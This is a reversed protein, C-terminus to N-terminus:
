LRTDGTGPALPLRASVAFGGGPRPGATLEGGHMAVRERMGILGHGAGSAARGGPGDDAVEVRVAAGDAAVRVRCRAPAAHRVVNTVAEQVIRYVSRELAPPLEGAGGADVEVRVGAAAARDALAALGSLGSAPALPEDAGQARLVGLMHRMEGLAERSTGMIVRLADRVEEPREDAVHDAVAAKVGIVSLTHSVVDHLERAIRLREEAAAREAVQRAARAAYARRERVARGVTWAGSLLTCGIVARATAEPDGGVPGSLLGGVLGVASLVGIALTPEWSRRPVTLAVTYLAYAAAAFPEAVAGTLAAAATAAACVAFVPVPWHRRAAVPLGIAAAAPVAAWLPAHGPDTVTDLLLLLTYAVAVAADLGLLERPGLRRFLPPADPDDV